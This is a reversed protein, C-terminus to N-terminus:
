KKEDVLGYAYKESIRQEIGEFWVNAVQPIKVQKLLKRSGSFVDFHVGFIGGGTDNVIFWGDHISGDPLKMGEFEKIFVKTKPPVLGGKGKYAPESKTTAGIDAALTKFPQLPIDRIIGYGDGYRKPQIVNFALAKVVKDDQVIIGSYGYPRKPLYKKHYELVPAYDAHKVDIFNGAVNLLRNDRLRGSGQLCLDAFFSAEVIVIAKGNTSFVPIIRNGSFEDQSSIVYGTLRFKRYQRDEKKSSVNIINNIFNFVGM